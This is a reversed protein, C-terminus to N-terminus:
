QLQYLRQQEQVVILVALISKLLEVLFLYQLALVLVNDDLHYALNVIQYDNITFKEPFFQLSGDVGSTTFDFDGLNGVSHMRGYQNMYAFSGDQIMSVIEFQRESSFREDKLYVFYKVARSNNINFSDAQTFRTARPNSNFQGSIDDFEVVRNGFSEFFDTLIRSAFIIEDSYVSGSIDLSNEAALDFDYVCNLDAISYLDNVVSFYSLETSIGVAMSNASIEDFEAPTELQYDSFKRFGATHNTVSVTDNWTDFDIRSRLSYSFNQYYFSDQVRQLNANLFGSDTQSGKIVRSSADTDLISEYTTVSSAIGQTKSSAGVILEGKAFDRSSSVRLSGTKNDWSEVIGAATNSSVREGDIFNNDKLNIDFIPFHKEPIVRGGSNFPDFDGVFEGKNSDLLGELSYSFTAGVGGLNKDVAIVPFLKYGYASSNFGKGTSGIGVSINEILVKDGVEIPFLDAASFGVALTM